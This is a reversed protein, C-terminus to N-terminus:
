TLYLHRFFLNGETLGLRPVTITHLYDSSESIHCFIKKKSYRLTQFPPSSNSFTQGGKSSTPNTIDKDLIKIELPTKFFLLVCSLKLSNWIDATPECNFINERYGYLNLFKCMTYLSYLYFLAELDWWKQTFGSLVGKILKATGTLSFSIPSLFM